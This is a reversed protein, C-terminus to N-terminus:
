VRESDEQHVLTPEPPEPAIGLTYRRILVLLCDKTVLPVLQVVLRSKGKVRTERKRSTLLYFIKIKREM